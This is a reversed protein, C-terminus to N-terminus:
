FQGPGNNCNQACANCLQHAYLLSVSPWGPVNGLISDMTISSVWIATFHKGFQKHFNINEKSHLLVLFFVQLFYCFGYIVGDSSVKGKKVAQDGKM